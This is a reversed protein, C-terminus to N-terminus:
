VHGRAEDRSALEEGQKEYIRALRQPAFGLKQLGPATNAVEAYSRILGDQLQVVSIGEFMTRKGECGPMKSEYSFVYRVYGVNGDSVPQHTDWRFNGADRHFYSEIMDVIRDHGRFAGYFVDHYVGDATFCSAVGRGDGKCAADMMKRMLAGFEM